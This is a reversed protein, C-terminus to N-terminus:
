SQTALRRALTRLRHCNACVVDCKAIEDRLAAEAGTMILRSITDVKSGRVHDFDMSEPAHRHGCDACRVSKAAVVLERLRRRRAARSISVNARHRAANRAYWVRAYERQCPKCRSARTRKAAEKIAFQELPRDQGCVACRKM